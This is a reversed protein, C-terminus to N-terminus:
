EIPIEDFRAEMDVGERRRIARWVFYWIAGVIIVAVMMGLSVPENAGYDADVLARYVIWAMMLSGLGGTITMLPIGAVQIRAPSTEYTEPKLFPFIAAVATTLLFVLGMPALGSLVRLWPTLAYLSLLIVAVVWTVLIAYTPAHTRESAEGLWSPGMGDIGWAFLGRTAYIATSAGVYATLIFVGSNIIITLLINDAMISVLTSLWPYALPFEGPTVTAVWGAALLTDTGLALRGLLQTLFVLAGGVLQALPIAILQGREVNKIEGSFSSSLVAFLFSFAPWITIFLTMRLDFAPSLDVGDARANALLEQYAGVGAYHDFRAPFNFAGASGAVMVLLFIVFAILAASYLWKQVQFYNKMGRYLQYCYVSVIVIGAVFWGAPSDFWLGLNTLSENELQLGLVTLLPSLGLSTAFVSVTGTYFIQYFTNVFSAVFGILPHTSRSLPVYEGGSRPYIALFLGYTVGELIAAVLAVITAIELNAGPYFVWFAVNFLVFPVALQVLCYFFTDFTSVARVLGSSERAFVGSSSSRTSTDSSM